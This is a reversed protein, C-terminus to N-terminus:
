YYANKQVRIQGLIEAGLLYVTHITYFISTTAQSSYSVADAQMCTENM